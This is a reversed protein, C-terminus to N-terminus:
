FDKKRDTNKGSDGYHAQLGRERERLLQVMVRDRYEKRSSFQKYLLHIM